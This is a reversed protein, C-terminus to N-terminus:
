KCLVLPSRDDEQRTPPTVDGQGDLRADEDTLSTKSPIKSKGPHSDIAAALYKTESLRTGTLAEQFELHYPPVAKGRVSLTDAERPKGTELQVFYLESQPSLDTDDWLNLEPQKSDFNDLCHHVISSDTGMPM